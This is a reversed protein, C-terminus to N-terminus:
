RSCHPRENSRRLLGGIAGSAHLQGRGNLLHGCIQRSTFDAGVAFRMLPGFTMASSVGIFHLGPSSSEFNPTLRPSGNVLAIRQLLDSGVFGLRRLDVRYGTGAIIHDAEVINSDGHCDRFVLRVQNGIAEAQEVTRGFTVPVRAAREKMFWGGSPGLHVKVVHARLSAPLYRFLGPVSICLLNSWGPGIGTVPVRIKRLLTRDPRERASGFKLHSGRLIQQPKAGAENLLVAIDVASAGGGLVVVHRGRFDTFNRHEASHSALHTPLGFLVQPVYRFHDIGTAVIVRKAILAEGNSLAVRYHSRDPVVSTVMANELRPVFRRQFEIGYECFTKISVPIGDDSYRINQLGCYAKLTFTRTPEYLSSAFGASKLLMDEPMNNRWAGMPCGFIRYDAGARELHAAVSLGYPGAGIIAIDTINHTMKPDFFTERWTTGARRDFYCMPGCNFLGCQESFFPCIIRGNRIVALRHLGRDLGYTAGRRLVSM